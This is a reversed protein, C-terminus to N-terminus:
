RGCHCNQTKSKKKELSLIKQYIKEYDAVMRNQSFREEVSLRCAEPSIEGVEKVREVMEDESGVIFGTKGDDIVEPVAGDRMAVVPTGTAMSEIMVLGFPEPWQIPFLTCSAQAYLRAKTKIDVEGMLVIDKNLLPEVNREFYEKEQKETIKTVMVLKKNLRRAVNVAVDAGKEKNMRGLFLLYGDKQACLSYANTDISNYVTGVWNMDGFCKQQYKSISNFYVGKGILKFLRKANDTAPGHLTFLVPKDVFSGVVPGILGSHDHIIDFQHADRYANLVHLVDPYVQGIQASPAKKFIGKVKAKSKSDLSAYVVVDHGNEALGDALQSVILEIGGYGKPPIPYWPPAIQAIKM